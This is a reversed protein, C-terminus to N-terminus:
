LADVNGKVEAKAFEVKKKADDVAKTASDLAGCAALGLSIMAASVRRYLKMDM